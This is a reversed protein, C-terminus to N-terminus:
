ENGTNSEQKANTLEEMLEQMEKIEQIIQDYCSAAFEQAQDKSIHM